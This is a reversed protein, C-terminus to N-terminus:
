QRGSSNGSDPLDKKPSKKPCNRSIHGKENCAFCRDSEPRTKWQKDATGTRPPGLGRNQNGGYRNNKNFTLKSSMQGQSRGVASSMLFNQSITQINQIMTQPEDRLIMPNGNIATQIHGPLRERIVDYIVSSSPNNMKSILDRLKNWYEMKDSFSGYSLSKIEFLARSQSDMVEFESVFKAAFVEFDAETTVAAVLAANKTMFEAYRGIISFDMNKGMVRPWEQVPIVRAFMAQCKFNSVWEKASQGTKFKAIKLNEQTGPVYPQRAQAPPPCTGIPLCGDTGTPHPSVNPTHSLDEVRRSWTNEVMGNESLWQVVRDGIQEVEKDLSSKIADVRCVVRGALHEIKQDLRFELATLSIENVEESHRGTECVQEKLETMKLSLDTTTQGLANVKRVTEEQKPIIHGNLVDVVVGTRANILGEMQVARQETKATLRQELESMNHRIERELAVVNNDQRQSLRTINSDQHQSLEAMRQDLRSTLRDEMQQMHILLTALLNVSPDTGERASGSSLPSNQLNLTAEEVNNNMANMQGLPRDTQDFELGNFETNLFPNTLNRNSMNQAPTSQLPSARFQTGSRTTGPVVTRTREDSM